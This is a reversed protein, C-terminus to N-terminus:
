NLVLFSKSLFTNDLYNEVVANRDVSHEALKTESFLDPHEAVLAHCIPIGVFRVRTQQEVNAIRGTDIM